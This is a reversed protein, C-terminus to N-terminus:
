KSGQVYVDRTTGDPEFFEFVSGEVESVGFDETSTIAEDEIKGDKPIKGPAPQTTLMSGLAPKNASSRKLHPPRIPPSKKPKAPLLPIKFVTRKKPTVVFNDSDAKM